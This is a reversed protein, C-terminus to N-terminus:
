PLSVLPSQLSVRGGACADAQGEAGGVCVGGRGGCMPDDMRGIPPPQQSLSPLQSHCVAWHLGAAGM